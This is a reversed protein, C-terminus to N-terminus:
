RLQQQCGDEECSLTPYVLEGMSCAYVGAGGNERYGDLCSVACETSDALTAGAVCGNLGGGQLYSPFAVPLDCSAPVCSSAASPGTLIGLSCNYTVTSAPVKTAYGKACVLGCSTSDAIYQRAVCSPNPAGINTTHPPLTNPLICRDPECLLDSPFTLTGLSCSYQTSGSVRTYGDRCEIKCYSGSDLPMNPSCGEYTATKTHEPLTGPLHCGKPRCELSPESLSGLSCAFTTTTSQNSPDYGDKCRINCMDGDELLGRTTCRSSTGVTYPPFSYPLSCGRPECNLTPAVMKGAGCSYQM